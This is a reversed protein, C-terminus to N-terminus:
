MYYIYHDKWRFWVKRWAVAAAVMVQLRAAAFLQITNLHRNRM